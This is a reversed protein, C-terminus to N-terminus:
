FIQYILIAEFNLYYVYGEFHRDMLHEFIVSASQEFSGKQWKDSFISITLNRSMQESIYPRM